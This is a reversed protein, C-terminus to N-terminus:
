FTIPFKNKRILGAVVPPVTLIIAQKGRSYCYCFRDDKERNVEIRIKKGVEYQYFAFPPTGGRLRTVLYKHGDFQVSCRYGLDKKNM